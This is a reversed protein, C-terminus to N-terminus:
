GILVPTDELYSITRKIDAEPRIFFVRGGSMSGKKKISTIRTYGLTSSAVYGTTYGPDDSACLEALVGPSSAVKSSLTLAEIVTSTNIGRRSLRRKLSALAKPDIGMLTARVGRTRDPELRKGTVADVLAAGRMVRKGNLVRLGANIARASVGENLLIDTIATEAKSTSPCDMTSVSLAKIIYPKRRLREITVVVEAPEGRPHSMARRTYQAAAREASSLTDYIGEAGSIHRGRLDSARMRVSYFIRM